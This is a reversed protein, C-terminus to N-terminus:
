VEIPSRPSRFESRLCVFFKVLHPVYEIRMNKHSFNGKNLVCSMLERADRQITRWVLSTGNLTKSNSIVGYSFGSLLKLSRWSINYYQQPGDLNIIIFPLSNLLFFNAKYLFRLFWIKSPNKKFFYQSKTRGRPQSFSQEDSWLISNKAGLLFVDWLKLALSEM